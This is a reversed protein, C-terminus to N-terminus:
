NIILAYTLSSHTLFLYFVCIWDPYMTRFIYHQNAQNELGAVGAGFNDGKFFVLFVVECSGIEAIETSDNQWCTPCSICFSRSATLLGWDALLKRCPLSSKWSMKSQLQLHSSCCKWRCRNAAAKRLTRTCQWLELCSSAFWLGM